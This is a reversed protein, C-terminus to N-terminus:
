LVLTSIFFFYVLYYALFEELQEKINQLRLDSNDIMVQEYSERSSALPENSIPEEDTTNRVM